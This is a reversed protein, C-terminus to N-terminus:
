QNSLDRRISSIQAQLNALEKDLTTLVSEKTNSTEHRRLDTTTNFEKLKSMWTDACPIKSLLSVGANPFLANAIEDIHVRGCLDSEFSRFLRRAEERTLCNPQLDASFIKSFGDEDIRGDPTSQHMTEYLTPAQNSRSCYRRLRLVLHWQKRREWVKTFNNGVLTIPIAIFLMGFMMGIVSCWIGGYSMPIMDGYGVTTMTVSLFWMTSPISTFVEPNTDKEFHYIIGSWFTGFSIIFYLPVLLGRASNILALYLISAGDYYRALVFVRLLKVPRLADTDHGTWELFFPFLSAVEIWIYVNTCMSRRRPHWKFRLMLEFALWVNCAMLPYFFSRESMTEYCVLYVSILISLVTAGSIPWEKYWSQIRM